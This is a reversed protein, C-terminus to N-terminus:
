YVEKDIAPFEPYYIEIDQTDSLYPLVQYSFDKLQLDIEYFETYLRHIETRIAEEVEDTPFLM